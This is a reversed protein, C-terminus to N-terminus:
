CRRLARGRRDPDRARGAVCPARRGPARGGVAVAARGAPSTPTTASPCRCRRAAPERLETEITLTRRRRAAGRGCARHPFPFARWCTRTRRRTSARPADPETTRRTRDGGLAAVGDRPRPDAPRQEDLRVPPSTPTSSSPAGARRIACATSGTPGRTCCRSGSRRARVRRLRPWAAASGSCSRAATACRAASWGRARARVGGRARGLPPPRDEDVAHHAGARARVVAEVVEVEEEERRRRRARRRLHRADHRDRGDRRGRRDLGCIM